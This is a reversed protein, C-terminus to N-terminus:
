LMKELNAACTDCHSMPPENEDQIPHPNAASGWWNEALGIIESNEIRLAGAVCRAAACSRNDFEEVPEYGPTNQLLRMGTAGVIFGANQLRQRVTLGGPVPRRLLARVKGGGGSFGVVVRPRSDDDRAVLGVTKGKAKGVNMEELLEFIRDLAAETEYTRGPLEGRNHPQRDPPLDASPSRAHGWAKDRVEQMDLGNLPEGDQNRSQVVLDLRANFGVHDDNEAFEYLREAERRSLRDKGMYARFEHWM